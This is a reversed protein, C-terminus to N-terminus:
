APKPKNEAFVPTIILSILGASITTVVVNGYQYLELGTILRIGVIALTIGTFILWYNINIQSVENKVAPLKFVVLAIVVAGLLTSTHQLIKLIPVSGFPTVVAQELATIRQIFFGDVHTFSDWLLHSAAGVLVSVAVIKWNKWFYANWRFGIYSSFRSRLCDPLNRILPDRVLNHFIFTLLVGLPLNFWVLGFLTHSYISQM